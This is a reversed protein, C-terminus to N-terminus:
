EEVKKSLIAVKKGDREEIQWEVEDQLVLGMGKIVGAPVALRLGWATIRGGIKKEKDM